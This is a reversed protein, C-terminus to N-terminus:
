SLASPRQRVTAQSYQWANEASHFDGSFCGDNPAKPDFTQQEHLVVLFPPLYVSHSIQLTQPIAKPHGVILSTAAV